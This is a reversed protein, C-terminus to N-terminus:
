LVLQTDVVLRSLALPQQPLFPLPCNPLLEVVSLEDTVGTVTDPIGDPTGVTVIPPLLAVPTEKTLVVVSVAVVGAPLAPAAVTVTVLGSLVDALRVFPKVYMSVEGFGVLIEGFAPGVAPPVGTM